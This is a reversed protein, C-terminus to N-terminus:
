ENLVIWGVSYYARPRIIDDTLVLEALEYCFTRNSQTKFYGGALLFKSRNNSTIIKFTETIGYFDRNNLKLKEGFVLKTSDNCVVDWAEDVDRGDEVLRKILVGLFAIYQSKTGLRSKRKPCLERAIHWWNACTTEIMEDLPVPEKKFDIGNFDIPRRVGPVLFPNMRMCWFDPIGKRIVSKLAMKFKWEKINKPRYKMFDDTLNLKSAEVLVFIEEIESESFVKPENVATESVDEEVNLESASNKEEVEFRLTCVGDKIETSILRGEPVNVKVEKVEKM